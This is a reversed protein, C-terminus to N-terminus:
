KDVGRRVVRCEVNESHHPHQELEGRCTLWGLRTVHRSAPNPQQPAFHGHRAAHNGRYCPEAPVTSGDYLTRKCLSLWNTVVPAPGSCRANRRAVIGSFENAKKGKRATSKTMPPMSITTSSNLTYAAATCRSPTRGAREYGGAAVEGDFLRAADDGLAECLVALDTTQPRKVVPM